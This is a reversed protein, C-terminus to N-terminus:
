RRKNWYSLDAKPVATMADVEGRDRGPQGGRRLPGVDKAAEAGVRRVAVTFVSDRLATYLDRFDEEIM